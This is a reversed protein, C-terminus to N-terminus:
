IMYEPLALARGVFKADSPNSKIDLGISEGYVQAINNEDVFCFGAGVISDEIFVRATARHDIVDPFVVACMICLVGDTAQIEGVIYKSKTYLM